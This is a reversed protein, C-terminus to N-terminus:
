KVSGDTLFATGSPVGRFSLVGFNGKPVFGPTLLVFSDVWRGNVPLRLIQDSGVGEAVGTRAPDRHEARPAM